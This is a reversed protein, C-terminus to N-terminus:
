SSTVYFYLFLLQERPLKEYKRSIQGVKSKENAIKARIRSIKPHNLCNNLFCIHTLDFTRITLVKM